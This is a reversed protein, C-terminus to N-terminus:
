RRRRKRKRRSTNRNSATSGTAPEADPSPPPEPLPTKGGTSKAGESEYIKNIVLQQQGVRWLNSSLFYLNLGAVFNLSIFGFFIPMIKTVAQMQANIPSGQTQQRAMTQRSQFWGTLMIGAVVAFYPLKDILSGEVKMPTTHLDMALFRTVSGAHGTIDDFLRSLAGTKPINQGKQIHRLVGLLAIFIPMQLLLPLCGSLPNIKQEQYFKLIEENQKQKDDKYRQQIRKIEPQVQQMRLMSRTQKATLPTLLLMVTCTLLIICVGLNPVFRYYAALLWGFLEYFPTLM